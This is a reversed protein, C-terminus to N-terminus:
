TSPSPVGTLSGSAPCRASARCEDRAVSLRDGHQQVVGHELVVGLEHPRDARGRAERELVLAQLGLQAGPQDLQLRRARPQDLRGVGLPPPDLAVEVVAGLLPEDRDRHREPQELCLERALRRRGSREHALGAFRERERERLQALQGVADVRRQEGLAPERGREVFEAAARRKRCMQVHRDIPAEGVLDLGGGVEDDALRQGVGGLVGM